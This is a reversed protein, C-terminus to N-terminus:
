PQWVIEMWPDRHPVQVLEANLAEQWFAAEERTAYQSLYLTVIGITDMDQSVAQALPNRGDFVREDLAYQEGQREVRWLRMRGLAQEMRAKNDAWSDGPVYELVAQGAMGLSPVGLAKTLSKEPAVWLMDDADGAAEPTTVRHADQFLGHSERAVVVTLGSGAEQRDRVQQRMDLWEMQRIDGVATLMQMLAVPQDTHVHVKLQRTGPAIVISDGITSLQDRLWAESDERRLQYLLAEVDYYYPIDDDAVTMPMHPLNAAVSVRPLVEGRAARLWGRVLAVYGLAGADVWGTARLVPLEEATRALAAEGAMVATHLCTLLDGDDQCGSAMADAVTLITGEVPQTVQSRARRAASRLARKLDAAEFATRGEAAEAFGTFIQSLIVGSNGRAGALAGDSLHALVVSLAAAGGARMARVASEVTAVMNNGTDGDPVPFVNLQNLQAQHHKLEALGGEM